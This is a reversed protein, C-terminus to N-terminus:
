QTDCLVMKHQKVYALSKWQERCFCVLRHCTQKFPRTSYWITQLEFKNTGEDVHIVIAISYELVYAPVNQVPQTKLMFM